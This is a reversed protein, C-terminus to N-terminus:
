PLIRLIYGWPYAQSGFTFGWVRSFAPSRSAPFLIATFDGMVAFPGLPFSFSNTNLKNIM